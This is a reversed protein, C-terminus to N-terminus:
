KDSFWEELPPVVQMKRSVVGLLEAIGDKTKANFVEAIIKEEKEGAALAYGKINVIDAIVLLAFDLKEEKKFKQLANLFEGKRALAQEPAITELMSIGVKAKHNFHFEKYDRAIIKTASLNSIDSKAAFIESAHVEMDIKVRKNLWNAMEADEDTCTPSKLALTDTLIASLLLGAIHIEPKKENEQYMKSVITSTAGVPEVRIFIPKETSFDEGVRHHDIVEVVNDVEVGRAWQGEENHDVLIVSYESLDFLHAIEPCEVGFTELALETGKNIKNAILPTAKQGLHTKLQAYAIASAVSDTDPNKHGIVFLQDKKKTM